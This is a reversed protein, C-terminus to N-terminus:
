ALLLSLYAWIGLAIAGVGILWWGIIPVAHTLFLRNLVKKALKFDGESLDDRLWILAQATAHRELILHTLRNKFKEHLLYPWERKQHQKAHAVEHAAIAQAPITHGHYVVKTLQVRGISTLYRDRWIGKIIWLPSSVGIRALLIRAYQGGSM